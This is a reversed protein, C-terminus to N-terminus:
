LSGAGFWDLYMQELVRRSAVWEEKGGLRQRKNGPRSEWDRPRQYLDAATWSYKRQAQTRWYHVQDKNKKVAVLLSKIPKECAFALPKAVSGPM